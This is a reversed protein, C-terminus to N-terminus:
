KEMTKYPSCKLHKHYSGWGSDPMNRTFLNNTASFRDAMSILHSELTQPSRYGAWEPLGPSATLNHLVVMFRDESMPLKYKGKVESLWQLLTLKHGLLRGRDSLRTTGNVSVYEATKGIDHLLTCLLVMDKDVLIHNKCLNIVTEAAEITHLINGHQSNHHGNASAPGLCFAKLRESDWLVANILFRSSENLMLNLEIIRNILLPNVKWSRPILEFISGSSFPTATKLTKALVPDNGAQIEYHHKRRKAKDFISM